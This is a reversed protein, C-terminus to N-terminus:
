PPPPAAGAAPPSPAGVRGAPAQEAAIQKEIRAAKDGILKVVVGTPDEHMAEIELAKRYEALAETKRGERAYIDGLGSHALALEEPFDGKRGDVPLAPTAIKIVEEFARRAEARTKPDDLIFPESARRTLEEIKEVEAGSLVKAHPAIGGSHPIESPIGGSSRHDRRTAPTSM